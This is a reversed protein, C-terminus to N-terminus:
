NLLLFKPSQHFIERSVQHQTGFARECVRNCEEYNEFNNMNGRCGSYVFPQCVAREGDFYWRPMFGYCSGVQKPQMCVVAISFLIVNHVLILMGLAKYFPGNELTLVGLLFTGFNRIHVFWMRLSLFSELNRCNKSPKQPFLTRRM